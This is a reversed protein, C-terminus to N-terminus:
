KLICEAIYTHKKGEMIVVTLAVCGLHVIMELGIIMVFVNSRRSISGETAQATQFVNGLKRM